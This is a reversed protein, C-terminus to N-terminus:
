LEKSRVYPMPESIPFQVSGKGQKYKSLEEAFDSHGAPTAYFGFHNKYGAFHVLVSGNMKYTPMGYNIVEDSQPATERIVRRVQELLVITKPPFNKIYEEIADM